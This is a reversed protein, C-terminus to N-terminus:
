VRVCKKKGDMVLEIAVFLLTKRRNGAQANLGSSSLLLCFSTVPLGVGQVGVANEVGLCVGAIYVFGLDEAQDGIVVDGMPNQMNLQDRTNCSGDATEEMEVLIENLGDGQAMVDAVGRKTVIAFIEQGSETVFMAEWGKLVIDLRDAKEILEFALAPAPIEAQLGKVADEAVITLQM